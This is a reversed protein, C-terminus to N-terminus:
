ILLEVMRAQIEPHKAAEKSALLRVRDGKERRTLQPCNEAVRDYTNQVWAHVDELVIQLVDADWKPLTITTKASEEDRIEYNTKM